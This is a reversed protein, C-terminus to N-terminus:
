CQSSESSFFGKKDSLLPSSNYTGTCWYVPALGSNVLLLGWFVNRWVFGSARTRYSIFNTCRRTSYLVSLESKKGSKYHAAIYLVFEKFQILFHNSNFRNKVDQMIYITFRMRKGIEYIFDDSTDYFLSNSQILTATNYLVVEKRLNTNLEDLIQAEDFLKGKFFVM